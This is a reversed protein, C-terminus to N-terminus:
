RATLVPITIGCEQEVDFRGEEIARLDAPTFEGRLIRERRADYSAITGEPPECPLRQGDPTRRTYVTRGTWGYGDNWVDCDVEVDGAPELKMAAECLLAIVDARDDHSGKRRPASYRAGGHPLQEVRLESLQKVTEPDDLLRLSGTKLKAALAEFRISQAGPAMSAVELVLGRARLLACLGQAERSDGIAKHVHYRRALAAISDAIADYDLKGKAGKLCDIGVSHLPPANDRWSLSSHAVGVVFEDIGGSADLCLTYQTGEVPARETVGISVCAQVTARDIFESQNDTFEAGYERRANNPDRAYERAVMMRTHEDDRMTSTPAHAVLASIPKGWNSTWLDFLLGSPGWPTSAIILQGEPVIRPLLARYLDVDSTDAGEPRFFACEDLIAGFLSRGRLSGGCRASPVAQITVAIGDDRQLTVSEATEHVVMARLNPTSDIAGTVYRLAQQATRLDFSVILGFAREGPALSRLSTTLALHLLRLAALYTKGSRAGAVIVAVTRAIAEAKAVDGFLERALNREEGGFDGPERGNFMVSCLIRQARTLTVSLVSAVFALFGGGNAAAPETRRRRM